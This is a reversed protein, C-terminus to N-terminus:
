NAKAAELNAKANQIAQDSVRGVYSRICLWDALKMLPRTQCYDLEREFWTGGDRSTFTYTITAKGGANSTGAFVFRRPFDKELVKWYFKFPILFISVYETCEEGPECPHDTAGTVRKTIPYWDKWTGFTTVYNFVDGPLRNIQIQGRITNM